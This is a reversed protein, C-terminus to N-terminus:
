RLKNRDFRLATKPISKGASCIQGKKYSVCGLRKALGKVGWKKAVDLLLKIPNREHSHNEEHNEKGAHKKKKKGQQVIHYASLKKNGAVVESDGDFDDLDLQFIEDHKTSEESLVFKAGITLLDCTDTYVFQLLQELIQPHLDNLEIVPIDMENLTQSKNALLSPFNACRNVLIYKHVPWRQEHVQLILDHILDYEDVEDLLKSFCETMETVSISPVDTLCYNPMTQLTAFDRGKKDGTIYMARHVNPVKRVQLEETEEQMLLDMLSMRGFEGENSEKTVSSSERVPTPKNSMPCIFVEGLDTVIAVSNESLIFDKVYLQRKILWHARKLSPSKEHWIFVKGSTNLYSIILQRGGNERLIQSDTHDLNGGVVCLRQIDARNSAMKRCQYEHLVYIEGDATLVVTAADSCKVSVITVEKMNLWSVQRLQSIKRDGKPKAHGLQGANLGCTFAATSTHLVTHFRGACIGIINRGKITKCNIPKPVLCLDPTPHQGLQHCSNTGCSYVTGSQCLFLTHDRAAAIEVVEESKLGDVQKPVLCTEEVPHGLRGGLGHGCTYVSGETTLFVTHYKCMVVQKVGVHKKRFEDVVEPANRGMEISHGLTFNSNDGWTFVEHRSTSEYVPAPVNEILVRDKMAIDLPGLGEHDRTYLDSKYQILLRATALQGYFLARHLATWGSELDKKTVDGHMAEMLWEVLDVKGCSAAMHLATRGQMDSLQAGNYCLNTYAQVELLNGKSIAVNLEYAHKRSRCKPGCEMMMKAPM